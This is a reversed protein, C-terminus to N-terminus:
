MYNIIIVMLIILILPIIDKNNQIIYCKGESNSPFGMIYDVETCLNIWYIKVSCINHVLIYVLCKSAIALSYINRYILNESSSIESNSLFFIKKIGILLWPVLDQPIGTLNEDNLFSLILNLRILSMELTDPKFSCIWYYWMSYTLKTEGSLKPDKFIYDQYIDCPNLPYDAIKTKWCSKLWLSITRKKLHEYEDGKM